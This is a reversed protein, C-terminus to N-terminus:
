AYLFDWQFDIAISMHDQRQRQRQRQRQKQKQKRKRTRKTKERTTPTSPPGRPPGDGVVGRNAFGISETLTARSPRRDLHAGKPVRRRQSTRLTGEGPGRASKMRPSLTENVSRAFVGRTLSFHQDRPTTSSFNHHQSNLYIQSM